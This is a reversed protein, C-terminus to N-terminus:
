SEHVKPGAISVVRVRRSRQWTKPELAVIALDGEKLNQEWIKQFHTVLHEQAFDSMYAFNWWLGLIKWLKELPVLVFQDPDELSTREFSDLYTENTVPDTDGKWLQLVEYYDRPKDLGSCQTMVERRLFVHRNAWNGGHFNSNWFGGWFFGFNSSVIALILATEYLVYLSSGISTWADTSVLQILSSLDLSTHVVTFYAILITITNWLMPAFLGVIIYLHMACCLVFGATGHFLMLCPLVLETVGGGLSFVKVYPLLWHSKKGNGAMALARSYIPSYSFLTFPHWAAWFEPFLKGAGSFFWIRCLSLLLAPAFHEPACLLCHSAVSFVLHSMWFSTSDRICM